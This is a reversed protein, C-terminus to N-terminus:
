HAGDRALVARPTSLLIEVDRVLTWQEIYTTDLTVRQDYDVNSRGSVQWPGTIGPRARTYHHRLEGYKEELEWPLVPRPGVLSMHGRLVNWFQPLEDLSTARIFRGVKTIRLDEHAELKCNNDLYRQYLVPDSHLVQEADPRMSRFKIMQFERGDAGVRVQRFLVPGRDTLFVALATILILPSFAILAGLSGAIDLARKSRRQHIPNPAGETAVAEACSLTEDGGGAREAGLDVRQSGGVPGSSRQDEEESALRM